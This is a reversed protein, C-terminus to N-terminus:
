EAPTADLWLEDFHKQLGYAFSNPNAPQRVELCPSQGPFRGKAYFNVLVYDADVILMRFVPFNRYTRIELRDGAAGLARRIRLLMQITAAMSEAWEEATSADGTEELARRKLKEIEMRDFLLLKMSFEHNTLLKQRIAAEVQPQMVTRASVGLFLLSRQSSGLHQALDFKADGPDWVNTIGYKHLRAYYVLAFPLILLAVATLGWHLAAPLASVGVLAAYALNAAVGLAVSTIVTKRDM